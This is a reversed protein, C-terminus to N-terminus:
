SRLMFMENRRQQEKKIAMKKRLEKGDQIAKENLLKEMKRKEALQNLRETEEILKKEERQKKKQEYVNKLRDLENKLEKSTMEKSKVKEVEKIHEEEVKQVEAEIEKRSEKIDIENQKKVEEIQLRKQEIKIRNKENKNSNILNNNEDFQDNSNKNIINNESEDFRVFKFKNKNIENNIPFSNFIENSPIYSIENVPYNIEINNESEEYFKLYSDIDNWDLDIFRELDTNKFVNFKLIKWDKNVEFFSNTLKKDYFKKRKANKFKNKKEENMLKMYQLDQISPEYIHWIVYNPLGIVQYGMKKCLKGFGETEAHKLYSFAPFIAGNQFVTSKSLISVGGIGDLEMEIEPDGFPDRLYGLHIRWTKYENYGEVIVSDENLKNALDLGGESEKWSNLDYPQENGLWDPLPRWINPVIVDKNHHMLDEIITSPISEVDIDRWYVWSHYPKLSITLLWNRAIAMLKRRPGQANFGHRDTFSQSIIQGFNKEYININNFHLNLDNDNQIKLLNLKLDKITSDTTDSVLFSLDILNHPYTINKLNEFFMPLHLSADRLPVLFLIREDHNWGDSHQNNSDKLDYYEINYDKLNNLYTPSYLNSNNKNNNSLSNNFTIIPYVYFYLTSILLLIILFSKNTQIFINKFLDDNRNSYKNYKLINHNLKM